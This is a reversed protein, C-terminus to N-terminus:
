KDTKRLKRALKTTADSKFHKSPNFPLDDISDAFVIIEDGSIKGSVPLKLVDQCFSIIDYDRGNFNVNKIKETVFHREENRLYCFAKFIMSDASGDLNLELLDVNRPQDSTGVAYDITANQKGRWLPVPTDFLCDDPKSDDKASLRDQPDAPDYGRYRMYEDKSMKRPDRWGNFLDSARTPAGPQKSTGVSRRGLPSLYYLIVLIICVIWFWM